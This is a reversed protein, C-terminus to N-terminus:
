RRRFNDYGSLILRVLFFYLAVAGTLFGFAFAGALAIALPL